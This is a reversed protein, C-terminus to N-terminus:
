EGHVLDYVIKLYKPLDHYARDETMGDSFSTVPATNVNSPVYKWPAPTVTDSYFGSDDLIGKQRLRFAEVLGLSGLIPLVTFKMYYFAIVNPQM